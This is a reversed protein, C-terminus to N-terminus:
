LWVPPWNSGFSPFFVRFCYLGLFFYFFFHSFFPCAMPLRSSANHNFFHYSTVALPPSAPAVRHSGATAARLM